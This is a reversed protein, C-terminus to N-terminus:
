EVKLDTNELRNKHCICSLIYNIEAIKDDANLDNAQVLDRLDAVSIILEQLQDASITLNDTTKIKNKNYIFEM